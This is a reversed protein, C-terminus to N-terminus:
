KAVQLSVQRRTGQDDEEYHGKAFDTWRDDAQTIFTTDTMGLPELIKSQLLDEWSTGSTTLLLFSNTKNYLINM